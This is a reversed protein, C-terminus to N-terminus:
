SVRVSLASRTLARLVAPQGQRTAALMLLLALVPRIVADPLQTTPLGLSVALDDSHLAIGVLCTLLSRALPQAWAGAPTAVLRDPDAGPLDAWVTAPATDLQARFANM